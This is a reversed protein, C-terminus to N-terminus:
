LESSFYSSMTSLRLLKEHVIIHHIKLCTSHTVEQSMSHHISVIM